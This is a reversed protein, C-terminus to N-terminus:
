LRTLVADSQRMKLLLRQVHKLAQAELTVDGKAKSGEDYLNNRVCYFKYNGSKNRTTLTGSNVLPPCRLASLLLWLRQAALVTALQAHNLKDAPQPMTIVTMNHHLRATTNAIKAAPTPREVDQESLQQSWRCSSPFSIVAVTLSLTWLM